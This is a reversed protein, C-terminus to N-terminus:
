QIERLREMQEPTFIRCLDNYQKKVIEYDNEIRKVDGWKRVEYGFESVFDDITGVDYKELCALIDYETPRNGKKTNDASDWFDGEMTGFPTTITFHYKNRLRNDNWIEPNTQREQFVIIMEARCDFLFDKAEREYDTM